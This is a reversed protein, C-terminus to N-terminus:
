CKKTKYVHKEVRVAHETIAVTAKACEHAMFDSLSSGLVPQSYKKFEIEPAVELARFRLSRCKKADSSAHRDLLVNCVEVVMFVAKTKLVLRLKTYTTQKM